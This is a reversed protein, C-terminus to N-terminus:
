ELERWTNYRTSYALLKKGSPYLYLWSGQDHSYVWPYQDFWTWGKIEDSEVNPTESSSFSESFGRLDVYDVRLFLKKGLYEQSIDLYDKNEGSLEDGDAYWQYQLDGLGDLDTIDISAQIINGVLITGLITISGTVLSRVPISGPLAQPHTIGM